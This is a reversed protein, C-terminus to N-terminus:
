DPDYFGEFVRHATGTMTVKEAESGAGLLVRLILAGGRFRLTLDRGADVRGLLTAVVAVAATGTGCCLTEDEVGREYTGVKLESPGVVEAFDVNVGRPLIPHWRIAGGLRRVDVADVNDVFVV